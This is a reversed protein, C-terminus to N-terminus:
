QVSPWGPCGMCHLGIWRGDMEVYGILHVMDLQAAVSAGGRDDLTCRGTRYGDQKGVLGEPCAAALQHGAVQLV